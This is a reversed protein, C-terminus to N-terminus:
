ASLHSLSVAIRTKKKKKFMKKVGQVGTGLKTPNILSLMLSLILRWNRLKLIILM